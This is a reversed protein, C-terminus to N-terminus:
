KRNQRGFEDVKKKVGQEIRALTPRKEQDFGPRMYPSAAQHVTGYELWHAYYGDVKNGSFHGTSQGKKVKPGIWIDNSKRFPLFVISRQLNGPEYTAVRTGDKTRFHEKASKPAQAKIEKLMPRAATRLIKKREKVEFKDLLKKFTDAIKDVQRDAM